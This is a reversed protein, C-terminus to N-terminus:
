LKILCRGDNQYLIKPISRTFFQRKALSHTHDPFYTANRYVCM